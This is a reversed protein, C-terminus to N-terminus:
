VRVKETDGPWREGSLARRATSGAGGAVVSEPRFRTFPVRLAPAKRDRARWCSAGSDVPLPEDLAMRRLLEARPPHGTISSPSSMARTCDAGRAVAFLRVKEALGKLRDSGRDIFHFIPALSLTAFPKAVDALVEGGRALGVQGNGASM